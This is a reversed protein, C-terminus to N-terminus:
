GLIKADKKDPGPGPVLSITRPRCKGKNDFYIRLYHGKFDRLEGTSTEVLYDAYETTSLVANGEILDLPNEADKYLADATCAGHKTHIKLEEHYLGLGEEMYRVSTFLFNAQLEKLGKITLEGPVISNEGNKANIFADGYYKGSVTELAEKNPSQTTYEVEYEDCNIDEEGAGDKGVMNKEEAGNIGMEEEGGKGVMMEEPAEEQKEIEEKQKEIEEDKGDEVGAEDKGDENVGGVTDKEVMEEIPSEVKVVDQKKNSDEDLTEVLARLVNKLLGEMSSMIIDVVIIKNVSFIM